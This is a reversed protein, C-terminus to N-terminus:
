RATLDTGMFRSRALCARRAPFARLDLRGRRDRLAPQALSVRLARRAQRDPRAQRGWLCCAAAVVNIPNIQWENGAYRGDTPIRLVVLGVASYSPPSIQLSVTVSALALWVQDAGQYVLTVPDLGASTDVAWDGSKFASGGLILNPSVSSISADALALYLRLVDGQRVPTNAYPNTNTLSIVLGSSADIQLSSPSTVVGLQIQANLCACCLATLLFIRSYQILV